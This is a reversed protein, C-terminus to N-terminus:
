RVPSQGRGTSALAERVDAPLERVGLLGLAAERAFGHWRSMSAALFHDGGPVPLWAAQAGRARAREVHARSAQPSTWTDATGHLVLLRTLQVREGPPLWPALAVVGVVESEDAVYNATRGGMSHGILVVPAGPHERRLQVLAWRADRVPDPERSPAANWGRVQYRLLVVAVDHRAAARRIAVALVLMRWWSAHRRLVPEASREQGGHLILVVGRAGRRIGFRTLSPHAM